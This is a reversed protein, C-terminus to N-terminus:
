GLERKARLGSRKSDSWTSTAPTRGEAALHAEVQRFRREFKANADRLAAEADIGLHRAAQSLAFLLDGLEEHARAADGRDIEDQLEGLEERVKDIVGAADAWDFGVRAARSGLKTARTLAPLGLTVGDLAGTGQGKAAREARKHQEWALSQAAANAIRRTPM